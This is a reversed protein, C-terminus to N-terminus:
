LDCIINFRTGTIHALTAESAVKRFLPQEGARNATANFETYVWLNDTRLSVFANLKQFDALAIPLGHGAGAVRKSSLNDRLIRNLLGIEDEESGPEARGLANLYHRLIGM